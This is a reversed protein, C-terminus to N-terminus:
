FVSKVMTKKTILDVRGSEEFSGKCEIANIYCVDRCLGCQTCKELDVYFNKPTEGTKLSSPFNVLNAKNLEIAKTPCAEQCVFCSVCSTNGMSDWKLQPYKDRFLMNLQHSDKTAKNRQNFLLFDAFIGKTFFYIKKLLNQSQLNGINVIM